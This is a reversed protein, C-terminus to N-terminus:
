PSPAAAAAELIRDVFDKKEICGELSLGKAKMLAKLEKVTLNALSERTLAAVATDEEEEESEAEPPM